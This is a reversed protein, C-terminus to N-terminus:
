LFECKRCLNLTGSQNCLSVFIESEGTKAWLLLLYPAGLSKSREDKRGLQADVFSYRQDMLITCTLYILHFHRCLPSSVNQITHARRGTWRTRPRSDGM